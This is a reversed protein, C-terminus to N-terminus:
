RVIQIQPPVVLGAKNPSSWARCRSCVLTSPPPTRSMATSRGTALPAGGPLRQVAERLLELRM